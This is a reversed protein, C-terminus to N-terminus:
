TAGNGFITDRIATSLSSESVITAGWVAGMLEDRDCANPHQRVLHLLLELPKPQLAIPEGDRTLEFRGADLEFSGFRFRMDFPSYGM